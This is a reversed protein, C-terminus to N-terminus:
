VRKSQSKKVEEQPMQGRLRGMDTEKGARSWEILKGLSRHHWHAARKGQATDTAAGLPLGKM